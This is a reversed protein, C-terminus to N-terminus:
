IKSLTELMALATQAASIGRNLEPKTSRDVADQIYYVALVEFIVPIEYEVSIDMCARACEDAILEFHYTKGKHIAGFAVIADYTNKKALKKAALPIEFSGPVRFIDVQNKQLGNEELTKVCDNELNTVIDSWFASSVIAIKLDKIQKMNHINHCPPWIDDQDALPVSPDRLLWYLPNRM